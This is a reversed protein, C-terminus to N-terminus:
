THIMELIITFNSMVSLSLPQQKVLIIKEYIYLSTINLIKNETFFPKCHGQYQLSNIAKKQLIVLKQIEAESAAGWAVEGFGIHWNDVDLASLVCFFILM